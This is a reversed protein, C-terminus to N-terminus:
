PAPSPVETRAEYRGSPQDGHILALLGPISASPSPRDSIDEGPFADQHMETRMDGPDISLVRWGPREAGLIRGAHDLAAKSAGYAGWGEYAEVAADSSLDVVTAGPGLHPALEAVLAVPAVVNTRLVSEFVAPDLDTLAPQPSAGLTSANNVVLRVPGAATATAVLSRRHEAVTVDGVVAIVRGPGDLAAVLEDLRDRRRGDTVVTWGETVLARVLELGLGASGGTVVAVPALPAATRPASM